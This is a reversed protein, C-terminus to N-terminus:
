VLEASGMKTRNESVYTRGCTGASRHGHVRGHMRPWVYIGPEKKWSIRPRISTSAIRGIVRKTEGCVRFPKAGLRGYHAEIVLRYDDCNLAIAPVESSEWVIWNIDSCSLVM